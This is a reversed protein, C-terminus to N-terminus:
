KEVDNLNQIINPGSIVEISGDDLQKVKGKSLLDTLIDAANSNTSAKEEAEALEAKLQKIQDEREQEIVQSLEEVELQEKM